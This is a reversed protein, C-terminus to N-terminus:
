LYKKKFLKFINIYIIYNWYRFYILINLIIEIFLWNLYIWYNIYIYDINIYKDKYLLLILNINYINEFYKIFIKINM